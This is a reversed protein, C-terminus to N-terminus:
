EYYDSDVDVVIPELDNAHFLLDGNKIQDLFKEIAEKETEARIRYLNDIGMIYAKKTM